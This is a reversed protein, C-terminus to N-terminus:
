QKPWTKWQLYPCLNLGASDQGFRTALWARSLGGEPPKKGEVQGENVSELADSDRQARGREAPSVQLVGHSLSARAGKVRGAMHLTVVAAPHCAGEYTAPGVSIGTGAQGQILVQISDKRCGSASWINAGGQQGRSWVSAVIRRNWHFQVGCTHIISWADGATRCCVCLVWCWLGYMALGRDGRDRWRERKWAPHM